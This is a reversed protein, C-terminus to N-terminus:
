YRLPLWRIQQAIEAPEYCVAMLMLDEILVPVPVYMPGVIVGPTPEGSAIRANAFGVMTQVDSTVVVRNLSAARQLIIQDDTHLIQAEVATLIDVSPERRRIATIVDNNFNEDTLLRLM